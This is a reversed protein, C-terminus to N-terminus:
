RTVPYYGERARVRVKRHGKVTLQIARWKSDIATPPSYALLYSHQLDLSITEFIRDVESAKKVAYTGGATARSMDRLVSILSPQDLASGQAAFYVPIGFSKARRAVASPPLLSANDEGDTFAVIAKKGARRSLESAVQSISDFLATSGSPIAQLVAAKAISKEQTFEQVKRLTDNFSYIAVWDCDRFEDIFRLISRKMIPLEARTSETRDMLIACFLGSAVPEFFEVPCIEGNDSIEFDEQRLGDLYKGHRDLVTACVEVLRAEAKITQTDQLSDARRPFATLAWIAAVFAPVLFTRRKM